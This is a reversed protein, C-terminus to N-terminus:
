PRTAPCWTSGNRRRRMFGMVPVLGSVLLWIPGVIPVAAVDSGGFYAGTIGNPATFGAVHAAFYVNGEGAVGTSVEAFRSLTLGTNKLQFSLPSLRGTGTTSVVNEFRGFGDMQNPPPSVDAQWLPPLTWQANTGTADSLPNTGSVNFGFAQIGFNNAGPLSTLPSLVTVTFTLTNATNDDIAVQAYPINDVLTPHENTQNLVYNVVAAQAGQIMWVCALVVAFIKNRRM